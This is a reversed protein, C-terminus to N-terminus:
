HGTLVSYQDSIGSLHAMVERFFLFVNDLFDSVTSDGGTFFRSKWRIMSTMMAKVAPAETMTMSNDAMRIRAGQNPLLRYVQVPNIPTIKVAM